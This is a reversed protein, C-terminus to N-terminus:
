ARKRAPNFFPLERVTVRARKRRHEVTLEIELETGPTAHESGVHGLALYRKLLPSWTGSTAYGVQAGGRLLPASTQDAARHTTGGALGIATEGGYGHAAGGVGDLCRLEEM